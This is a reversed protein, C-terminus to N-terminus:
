FTQKSRPRDFLADSVGACRGDVTLSVLKTKSVLAMKKRYYLEIYMKRHRVFNKTEEWSRVSKKKKICTLLYKWWHQPTEQPTSQPRFSLFPYIKSYNYIWEIFTQIEQYQPRSLAIKIEPLEAAIKIKPMAGETELESQNLQCFISGSFPSILYNM